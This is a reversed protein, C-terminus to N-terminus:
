RFSLERIGADKFEDLIRRASNRGLIRAALQRGLAEADDKNGRIQGRIAIEGDLSFLGAEVSIQDNDVRAYVGIPLQCGGELGLLLSREADIALHFDHDDLVKVLNGLEIEGQRIEIGLAGQGAQPLMEEVPIVSLNLKLNLRKIGAYALIVADYLGQNLKEIRTDINGRLDLAVLDERLYLLQVRRRLSSTGVRSDEPLTRLTYGQRSVLVDCPNERKTVAAIKLGRTLQTPLDKMSHVALDIEGSLLAAEIEKTFLGQEIIKSLAIDPIEDGMTNITKIGLDLAPYAAKLGDRVLQAQALALRSSRSGIILRRNKM